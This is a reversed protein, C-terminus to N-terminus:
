FWWFWGSLSSFERSDSNRFDLSAGDVGKYTTYKSWRICAQTHTQMTSFSWFCKFILLFHVKKMMCWLPECVKKKAKRRLGRTHREHAHHFFYKKVWKQTNKITKSCAFAHALMRESTLICLVQLVWSRFHLTQIYFNTWTPRLVYGVRKRKWSKKTLLKKKDFTKDQLLNFSKKNSKCIISWNNM